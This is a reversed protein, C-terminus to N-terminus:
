PRPRPLRARQPTLTATRARRYAGSAPISSVVKPEHRSKDAREIAAFVGARASSRLRPASIARVADGGCLPCPASQPATGLPRMIEFLGHEDCRYEYIAM